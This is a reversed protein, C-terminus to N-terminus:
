PRRISVSAAGILYTAATDLTVRSQRGNAIRIITSVHSGGAMASVAATHSCLLGDAGADGTVDGELV